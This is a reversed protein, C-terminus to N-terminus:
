KGERWNWIDVVQKIANEPDRYVDDIRITKPNMKCSPNNCIIAYNYHGEYGRIDTLVLSPKKKCWPCKKVTHKHSIVKYGM